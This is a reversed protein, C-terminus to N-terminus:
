NASCYEMIYLYCMKIWEDRSPSLNNGYRTLWLAAIYMPICTNDKQTSTKTKEPYTTSPWIIIRNTTEQM